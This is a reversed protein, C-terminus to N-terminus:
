MSVAPPGGKGVLMLILPIAIAAVMGIVSLILGVVTMVGVFKWFSKQQGLAQELDAVTRSGQLRAIAKAYRSLYIAPFLYLLSTAIYMGGLVIGSVMGFPGPLGEGEPVPIFSMGVMMVLGALIMVGVGIFMTVSLLKVWPRTGKLYGLSKESVAPAAAETVPPTAALHGEGQGYEMTEVEEAL